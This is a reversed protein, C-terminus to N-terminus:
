AREGLTRCRWKKLAEIMNSAQATSLWQLADIGVQRKVYSALAAESRNRVVGMDALELWLGRIMKSQKDDALASRDAAPQRDKTTRRQKPAVPKWGLKQLHALFRRRGNPGLDRASRVNVVQLLLDRYEDDDIGLQQCAIHIKALDRNRTIDM